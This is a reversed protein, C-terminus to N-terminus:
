PPTGSFSPTPLGASGRASSPSTLATPTGQWSPWWHSFTKKQRKCTRVEESLSFGEGFTLQSILGDNNSMRIRFSCRCGQRLYQKHKRNTITWCKSLIIESTRRLYLQGAWFLFCPHVPGGQFHLQENLTVSHEAEPWQIQKQSTLKWFIWIYHKMWFIHNKWICDHM